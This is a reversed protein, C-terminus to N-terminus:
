RPSPPRLGPSPDDLQGGAQEIAWRLKAEIIRPLRLDRNRIRVVSIGRRNLEETRASDYDHMARSGHHEGDMEIVLKLEACYFDAIFPGIPEQRRFKYGGFKRSRLCYWILGEERTAFRRM